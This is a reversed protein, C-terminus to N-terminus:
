VLIKKRTKRKIDKVLAESTKKRSMKNEMNTTFIPFTDILKYHKKTGYNRFPYM